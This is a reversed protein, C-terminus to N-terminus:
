SPPQLNKDAKCKALPLIDGDTVRTIRQERASTEVTM